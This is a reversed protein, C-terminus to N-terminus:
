WEGLVSTGPFAINELLARWSSLLPLEGLAPSAPCIHSFLFAKTLPVEQAVHLELCLVSKSCLKLVWIQDTVPIKREQERTWRGTM